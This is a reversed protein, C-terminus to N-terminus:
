GTLSIVMSSHPSSVPEFIGAGPVYVDPVDGWNQEAVKIATSLDAWRRVDCHQFIVNPERAVLEKAEQTLQIDALLM